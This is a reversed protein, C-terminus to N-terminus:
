IVKQAVSRHATLNFQSALSHGSASQCTPQNDAQSDAPSEVYGTPM